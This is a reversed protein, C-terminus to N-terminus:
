PQKALLNEMTRLWNVYQNQEKSQLHKLLFDTLEGVGRAVLYEKLAGQLNPDLSRCSQHM